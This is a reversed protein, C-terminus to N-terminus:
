RPALIPESALRRAALTPGDAIPLDVTFVCGRGPLDRVRLTGGNAEIGQRAIFLGLGLGSKNSGRQRFPQFLESSFAPPLGGCQDEVEILVRGASTTSDIRLEVRGRPRSFKLANQLLNGIAAALLQQDINITVKPAVPSVSLEQGRSRAEIGAILEIEQIFEDLAVPERRHAGVELRVEALSKDVLDRLGNLARGLLLGTNSSIGIAGTRLAEYALVANNLGNRLEHAFVGLRENNESAITRDRQRAFETVAEATVEDLCRNLSRFEDATIPAHLENALETIAQCIDGYGQVVQAISFGAHGLAGGRRSASEGMDSPAGIEAAAEPRVATLQERRLIEGLQRLFVSVGDKIEAERAPPGHRALLRARSRAVISEHHTTLFEHLM